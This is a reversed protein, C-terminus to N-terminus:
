RRKVEEFEADVVNDAKKEAGPQQQEGGGPGQEAGGQPQGQAYLREAMKASADTM